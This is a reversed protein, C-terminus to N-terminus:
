PRPAARITLVMPLPRIRAIGMFRDSPSNVIQMRGESDILGMVSSGGGDLNHAHRCGLNQMVNALEHLTMGESYGAQRGDVVVLWLITQTEDMGIATRPHRAGDSTNIIEGDVILPAFGAAGEVAEGAPHDGLTVNGAADIWVSANADSAASRVVGDSLALGAIDIPQGHYWLHNKKGNEDPFSDWPNSNVFAIVDPNDALKRPDTLAAEAPGDGDPDNAIVVKPRVRDRSLDIRLLHVRNPRPESITDLRYTVGLTEPDAAHATACGQMVTVVTIACAFAMCRNYPVRRKMSTGMMAASRMTDIIKHVLRRTDHHVSAPAAFGRHYM